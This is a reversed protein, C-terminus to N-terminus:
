ASRPRRSVVTRGPLDSARAFGAIELLTPVVDLYSLELLGAAPRVDPGAALFIAGRRAHWGRWLPHGRIPGYGHDSVVVVNAAPQLASLRRLWGDLLEAYRDIVPGLRAADTTDPPEDPFDEPFRYPWFAHCVSDFGGLYVAVMPLGPHDRVLREAARVTRGDIELARLLMERPDVFGQAVPIPEGPPLLRHLDAAFAPDGRLLETLATEAGPSALGAADATRVGGLEWEDRGAWSSVVLARPDAPHSFPFRVVAPREGADVLRSWLPPRQLARATSPAIRIVQVASLAYELALVPDLVPDLMMPQQFTIGPLEGALDEYVGTRERPYGTVNAAWAPASWYPPWAA